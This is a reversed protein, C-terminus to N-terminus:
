PSHHPYALPKRWLPAFAAQVERCGHPRRRRVICYQRKIVAIKGNQSPLGIGIEPIGINPRNM